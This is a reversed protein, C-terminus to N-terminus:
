SQQLLFNTSNMSRVRFFDFLLRCFIHILDFSLSISAADFRFDNLSSYFAIFHEFPFILKQIRNLKSIIIGNESHLKMFVVIYRLITSMKRRQRDGTVFMCRGLMFISAKRTNAEKKKKKNWRYESQRKARLCACRRVIESNKNYMQPVNM